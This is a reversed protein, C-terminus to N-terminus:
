RSGGPGFAAAPLERVVVRAQDEARLAAAARSVVSRAAPATTDTITDHAHATMAIGLRGRQL